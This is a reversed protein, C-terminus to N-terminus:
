KMNAKLINAAEEPSVNKAVCVMQIVSEPVGAFLAWKRIDAKDFKKVKSERPKSVKVPNPQYNIDALKIKEREEVRLKNSLDNLYTQIARQANIKDIVETNLQFIAKKFGNVRDTLVQALKFHKQDLAVSEDADIINKLEIIAVTEANFIDSKVQIANDIKQAEILRASSETRYETVRTEAEAESKAQLEKQKTLCEPCMLMTMYIECSPGEYTCCECTANHDVEPGKCKVCLGDLANVVFAHQKM